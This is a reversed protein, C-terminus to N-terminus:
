SHALAAGTTARVFQLWQAQPDRTVEIGCVWVADPRRRKWAVEAQLPLDGAAITLRCTSEPGDTSPHQVELCAGGESVNIIRAPAGDLQVELHHPVLRRPWQRAPLFLEEEGIRAIQTKVTRLLLEPTVPKVLFEAGFRRADAEIVPDPYATVVIARVPKPAMAILHLGNYGELRIETILLDLENETLVTTASPVGDATLTRYGGRELLTAFSDRTATECDVIL